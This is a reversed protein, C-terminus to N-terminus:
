PKKGQQEKKKESLMIAVMQAKKKVVPGHPGGRRLLGAKWKAPVDKSPM